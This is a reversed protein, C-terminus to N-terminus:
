SLPVIYRLTSAAKAAPAINDHMKKVVQSITEEQDACPSIVCFLQKSGKKGEMLSMQM